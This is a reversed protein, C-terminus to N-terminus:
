TGLGRKEAPKLAEIALDFIENTQEPSRVDILEAFWWTRIPSHIQAVLEPFAALNAVTTTGCRKAEAFGETISALYDRESLKAKEANIAQIWDAFSKQSPIKCRLCTYDLHCHANILGPLLAQEGLDVIEQGSHRASVEPFKGVDIIRNGSIAVGGNEIPAGDMTVVVRARLIM